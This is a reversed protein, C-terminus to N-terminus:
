SSFRMRHQGLVDLSSFARSSFSFPMVARKKSTPPAISPKFSILEGGQAPATWRRPAVSGILASGYLPGGREWLSRPPEDGAALREAPGAELFCGM